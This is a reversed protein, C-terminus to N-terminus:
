DPRGAASVAARMRAALVADFAGATARWAWNGRATGPKNM